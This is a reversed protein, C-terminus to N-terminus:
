GGSDKAFGGQVRDGREHSAQLACRQAIWEVGRQALDRREADGAGALRAIVGIAVADARVGRHPVRVRRQGIQRVEDVAPQAHGDPHRDIREAGRCGSPKAGTERDPVTSRHADPPRLLIGITGEAGPRRREEVLAGAPFAAGADQADVVRVEVAKERRSPRGPDAEGNVGDTIPGDRGDEVRRAACRGPQGACRAVADLVRLEHPAGVRKPESGRVDDSADLRDM